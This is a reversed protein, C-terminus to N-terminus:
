EMITTNNMSNSLENVDEDNLIDNGGLAEIDGLLENIEEQTITPQPIIYSELPKDLFYIDLNNMHFWFKKNPELSALDNRDLIDENSIHLQGPFKVFYAYMGQRMLKNEKIANDPITVQKEIVYAELDQVVEGNFMLSWDLVKDLEHYFETEAYYSNPDYPPPTYGEGFIRSVLVRYKLSIPCDDKTIEFSIPIIYRDDYHAKLGIQTIVPKHNETIDIHPLRRNERGYEVNFYSWDLFELSINSYFEQNFPM